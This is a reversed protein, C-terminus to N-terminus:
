KLVLLQTCTDWELEKKEFQGTKGLQKENNWNKHIKMWFFVHKNALEGFDTIGCAIWCM